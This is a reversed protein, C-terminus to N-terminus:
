GCGCPRVPDRRWRAGIRTGHARRFGGCLGLAPRRLPLFEVFLDDVRAQAGPAGPTDDRAGVIDDAVLVLFALVLGEVQFLFQAEVVTEVALLAAGGAGARARAEALPLCARVLVEEAALAGLSVAVLAAMLFRYYGEESVRRVVVKGVQTGLLAPACLWLSLHLNDTSFQGLAWYPVLKIANVAAFTIASTGAYVLRPLRQPQVYVQFPPAGAHAVFSAFGLLLIHM